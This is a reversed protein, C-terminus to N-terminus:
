ILTQHGVRYPWVKLPNKEDAARATLRTFSNISTYMGLFRDLVATFLFLGGGAYKEPDFRIEIETGRCFGTASGSTIRATKRASKVSMIGSVHQETVRTCAYDYLRLIERLAEAGEQEDTISLHNLSLHSILRWRSEGFPLRNPASPAVVPLIRSYPAQGELQFGWSEGGAARLETPLNRNSCTTRVVLVDAPPRVPNFKLDVLSLYVETGADQKRISPRRTSYWFTSQEQLRSAHKFSYFPQYATTEGTDLNSSTVEEIRYVEFAEPHRV